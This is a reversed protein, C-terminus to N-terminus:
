VDRITKLMEAFPLQNMDRFQKAFNVIRTNWFVANSIIFLQFRVLILASGRKICDLIFHTLFTSYPTKALFRQTPKLFYLSLVNFSNVKEQAFFFLFFYM